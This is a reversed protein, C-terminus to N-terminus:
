TCEILLPSIVVENSLGNRILLSAFFEDPQLRSLDGTGHSHKFSHFSSSDSFSTSFLRDALGSFGASTFLDGLGTFDATILRDGLESLGIPFLRDDLGSFLLDALGATLEAFLLLDELRDDLGDLESFDDSTLRDRDALGAVTSNFATFLRDLLGECFPESLLRDALGSASVLDSSQIKRKKKLSFIIPVGSSIRFHNFIHHM